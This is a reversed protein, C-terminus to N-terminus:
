ALICSPSDCLDKIISVNINATRNRHYSNTYVDSRSELGNFDFDEPM